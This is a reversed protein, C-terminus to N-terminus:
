LTLPEARSELRYVPEQEEDYGAAGKCTVVSYEWSHCAPMVFEGRAQEEPPPAPTTASTPAPESSGTM